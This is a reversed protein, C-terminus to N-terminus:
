SLASLGWPEERVIRLVKVGELIVSLVKWIRLASDPQSVVPVPQAKALQIHVDPEGIRVEIAHGPCQVAEIPVNAVRIQALQLVELSVHSCCHSRSSTAPKMLDAGRPHGLSFFVADHVSVEPHMM